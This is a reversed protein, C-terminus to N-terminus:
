GLTSVVLALRPPRPIHRHAPTPWQDARIGHYPAKWGPRHQVYIQPWDADFHCPLLGGTNPIPEPPTGKAQIQARMQEAVDRHRRCYWYARAWGTIMDHEVVQIRATADCFRDDIVPETYGPPLHVITAPDAPRRPKPRHRPGDCPGSGDRVEPPPVYRPADAALLGGLRARGYDDCGVLDNMLEWLRPGTPSGPHRRRIWAMALAVERTGPPMRADAYIRAVAADYARLRGADGSMVALAVTNSPHVVVPLNYPDDCEWAMGSLRRRLLAVTRAWCVMGPANKADHPSRYDDAETQAGDLAQTLDAPTLGFGSLRQVAQAGEYITTM